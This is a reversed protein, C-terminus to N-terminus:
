PDCRWYGPVWIKEWGYPTWREEWHGPVWVRNPCRYYYDPEYYIPPPPPYYYVPPGIIIPPPAFVIGFRLYSHPHRHWAFAEGNLLITSLLILCLLIYMIYKKM